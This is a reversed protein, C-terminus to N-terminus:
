KLLVMKRIQQFEKGNAGNAQIKYLYIGSSVKLGNQDEGNWVVSYSGSSIEENILETVAQGLLNYITLRVDSNVPLSFEILTSPNFPNPYNQSLSYEKPVVNEDGDPTVSNVIGNIAYGLGLVNQFGIGGVMTGSGDTTSITILEGEENEVGIVGFMVGNEDFAM